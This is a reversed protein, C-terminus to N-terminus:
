AQGGNYRITPVIAFRYAYQQNLNKAEIIIEEGEGIPERVEYPRDNPEGTIIEEGDEPYTPIDNRQNDSGLVVPRTRLADQSQPTHWTLLSTIVGDDPATFSVADTFESTGPPVEAQLHPSERGATDPSGQQQSLLAEISALQENITSLSEDATTYKDLIGNM